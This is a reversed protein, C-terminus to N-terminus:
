ERGEENKNRSVLHEDSTTVPSFSVVKIASTKPLALMNVSVINHVFINEAKGRFNDPNFLPPRDWWLNYGAEWLWEILAKSKEPRDNEVYIAPRYKSITKVSGQLVELEFGEVDIKILGVEFDNPVLDDLPVSRVRQINGKRANGVQNASDAEFMTVAGFNSDPCNYNPVSFYLHGESSSIAVNEAQVNLLSNLAINACLNQFIVPQPEVVLLRRGLAELKKAMAVSHSGINAGIEIADKDPLILQDLTRWEAESYEGYQILSRGIYFDNPNALFRGHRGEVLQYSNM